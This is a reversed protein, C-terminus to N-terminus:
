AAGQRKKRLRGILAALENRATDLRAIWGPIRDVDLQRYDILHAGVMLHEAESAIQEVIRSPDHKRVHNTAKDGPCPIRERRLIDRVTAVHLHVKAAIQMSNHGEEALQRIRDRRARTAAQTRSDDHVRKPRLARSRRRAEAFPGVRGSALVDRQEVPSLAAVEDAASLTVAGDHVAKVLEPVGTTIVRHGRKIASPTVGVLAAADVQRCILEPSSIETKPRGGGTLNTIKAGVLALQAPTMHRRKENLSVVRAIPSGDGDWTQFRPEVGARECALLRNRGDLVRGDPHLLISHILGHTKIDEALGALDADSMMPFIDAVPHFAPPTM